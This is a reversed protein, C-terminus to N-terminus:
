WFCSMTYQICNNDSVDFTGYNNEMDKINCKYLKHWTNTVTGLNTGITEYM